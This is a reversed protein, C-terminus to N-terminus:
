KTQYLCWHGTQCILKCEATTPRQVAPDPIIYHSKHLNARHTICSRPGSPTWSGLPSSQSSLFPTMYKLSEMLLWLSGGHLVIHSYLVSSMPMGNSVCGLLSCVLHSFCSGNLRRSWCRTASPKARSPQIHMPHNTRGWM